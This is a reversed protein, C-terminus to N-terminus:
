WYRPGIILKAIWAAALTALWWRAVWTPLLMPQRTLWRRGIWAASFLCLAVVPLTFPNWALSELWRGDLLALGSRTMGTTPAPLGTLAKMLSMPIQGRTLWLANWAVYVVALAIATARLM